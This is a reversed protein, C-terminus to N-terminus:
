EFRANALGVYAGNNVSIAKIRVKEYGSIDVDIDFAKTDYYIDETVYFEEDEGSLVQLLM